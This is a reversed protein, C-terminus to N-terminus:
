GGSYLWSGWRVEDGRESACLFEILRAESLVARRQANARARMRASLNEM